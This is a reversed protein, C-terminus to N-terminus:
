RRRGTSLSAVIAAATAVRHDQTWPPGAPRRARLFADFDGVGLVDRAAEVAKKAAYWHVDWGRAAAAGALATRYMVTDAVNQARYNALREPITPPLAPCERIAIGRISSAVASALGELELRAFEEASKRVREVLAVAEDIPLKQADHHYPMKPLDDAVLTVRRRDLVEGSGGVTVAVAWGMHDAIGVVAGNGSM